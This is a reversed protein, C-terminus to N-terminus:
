RLWQLAVEEGQILALELSQRFSTIDSSIDSTPLETLVVAVRCGPYPITMGIQRFLRAKSTSVASVVWVAARSRLALRAIAPGVTRYPGHSDVAIVFRPGQAILRKLSELRGVPSRRELTVGALRGHDLLSRTVRGGATDDAVVPLSEALPRIYPAGFVATVLNLSHANWLPLIVPTQLVETPSIRSIALPDSIPESLAPRLVWRISSRKSVADLYRCLMRGIAQETARLPM